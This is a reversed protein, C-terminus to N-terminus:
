PLILVSSAKNLVSRDIRSMVYIDRLKEDGKINKIWDDPVAIKAYAPRKDNARGIDMILAGASVCEVDDLHKTMALSLFEKPNNM